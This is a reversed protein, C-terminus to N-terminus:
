DGYKKRYRPSLRVMLHVREVEDMWDQLTANIQEAVPVVLGTSCTAGESSLERLAKARYRSLSRDGGLACFDCDETLFLVVPVRDGGCIKLLSSLEKHQDRDLLRHEMKGGTAAAIKELMPVQEVCDGCWIGSITLVKMPRVFGGLLRKQADNLVVAEQFTLWRKQQESTGTALYPEYTLGENWKRTLLTSDIM